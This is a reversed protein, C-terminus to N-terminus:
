HAHPDLDLFTGLPPLGAAARGNAGVPPVHILEDCTSSTGCQAASTDGPSGNPVILEPHDFPAKEWRV